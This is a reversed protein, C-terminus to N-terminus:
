ITMSKFLLLLRVVPVDAGVAFKCQQAIQDVTKKMKKHDKAIAQLSDYFKLGYKGAELLEKSSGLKGRWYSHDKEKTVKRAMRYELKLYIFMDAMLRFCNSMDNEYFLGGTYCYISSYPMSLEFNLVDPGLFRWCAASSSGAETMEVNMKINGYVGTLLDKAITETACVSVKVGKGFHHILLWKGKTEGLMWFGLQKLLIGFHLKYDASTKPTYATLLYVNSGGGTAKLHIKKGDQELKIQCAEECDSSVKGGDIRFAATQSDM